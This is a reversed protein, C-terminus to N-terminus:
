VLTAGAGVEGVFGALALVALLVSDAVWAAELGNLLASDDAAVAPDAVVSIVAAEPLEIVVVAGTVALVTEATDLTADPVKDATFVKVDLVGLAADLGDAAVEDVAVLRDEAAGLMPDLVEVASDIDNGDVSRVAVLETVDVVELEVVLRVVADGVAGTGVALLAALLRPQLSTNANSINIPATTKTLRHTFNQSM